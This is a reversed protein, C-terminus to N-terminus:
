SAQSSNLASLRSSIIERAQVVLDDISSLRDLEIEIYLVHPECKLEGHDLERVKSAM